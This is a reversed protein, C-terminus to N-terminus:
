RGTRRPWGAQGARHQGHLGQQGLVGLAPLVPTVTSRSWCAGPSCSRAAVPCSCGPRRSPSGRPWGPRRGFGSGIALVQRPRIASLAAIAAPDTRPDDGHVAIVQAGAVRATTVAALTAADTDGAHVLLALHGLFAPPETAPLGAPNTVVRIGPLQATLVNATVGVALVVHPDLDRIQARLAASVM